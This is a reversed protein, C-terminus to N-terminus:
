MGSRTARQLPHSVMRSSTTRGPSGTGGSSYRQVQEFMAGFRYRILFEGTRARQDLRAVRRHQDVCRAGSTPWLACHQRVASQDLAGLDLRLDPGGIREADEVIKRDIV